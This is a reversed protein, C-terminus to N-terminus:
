KGVLHQVDQNNEPCIFEFIEETPALDSVRKITYPKALVGPDEITVESELHGLDPRHYREIVHLKDSHPHSDQDLWVRDNFGIRDVVLTDGEWHGINNGYWAPAPDSPHGRGDIYIQHFGPSDDDAIMVIVGPGQVLEYIPGTRTVPAPLCRAQPSDKRLNDTRQKTIELAKPLFEPKGPDTIRPQWWTGSLDPRGSITRPTPGSPPAHRKADAALTVADEGLTSLQTTAELKINLTAPRSVAVAFAKLEWPKLGPINISLDYSGTPLDKLSYAGSASIAAKYITGTATDKAQIPADPLPNGFPDSVTGAIQARAVSASM